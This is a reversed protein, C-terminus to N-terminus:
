RRGTGSLAIQKIPTDPDNSHIRLTAAYPRWATPNFEIRLAYEGSPNVAFSGILPKFAAADTGVAEVKTVTLRATGRNTVKMSKRVPGNVTVSGFDLSSVTAIDPVASTVTGPPMKLGREPRSFGHCWSCDYKKDKVHKDHLKNYSPM